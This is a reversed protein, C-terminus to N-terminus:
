KNKLINSFNTSRKGKPSQKLCYCHTFIIFSCMYNRDALCFLLFWNGEIKMPVEHFTPAPIVIFHHFFINFFYVAHFGFPSGPVRCYRLHCIKHCYYFALFWRPYPLTQLDTESVDEVVVVHYFYRHSFTRNFGTKWLKLFSTVVVKIM